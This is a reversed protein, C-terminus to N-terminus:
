GVRREESRERGKLENLIWHGVLGPGVMRVHVHVVFQHGLIQAAVRHDQGAKEIVRGHPFVAEGPLGVPSSGRGANGATRVLQGAVPDIAGRYSGDMKLAHLVLALDQDPPTLRGGPAVPPILRLGARGPFEDNAGCAEHRGFLGKSRSPAVPSGWSSSHDPRYLDLLDVGLGSDFCSTASGERTGRWQTRVARSSRLM